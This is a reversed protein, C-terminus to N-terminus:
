SNNTSAEGIGRRTSRTCANLPTTTSRNLFLHSFKKLLEIRRQRNNFSNKLNRCHDLSWDRNELKECCGSPLISIQSFLASKFEMSEISQTCEKKIHVRQWSSLWRVAVIFPRWFYVQVDIPLQSPVFLYPCEIAWENTSSFKLDSKLCNECRNELVLVQLSLYHLSLISLTVSNCPQM